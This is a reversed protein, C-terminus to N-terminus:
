KKDCFIGPLIGATLLSCNIVDVDYGTIGSECTERAGNAQNEEFLQRCPAERAVMLGPDPRVLGPADM